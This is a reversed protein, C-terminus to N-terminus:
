EKVLHLQAVLVVDELPYSSFLFLASRYHATLVPIDILTRNRIRQVASKSVSKM